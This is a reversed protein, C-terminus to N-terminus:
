VGSISLRESFLTLWSCRGGPWDCSPLSPFILAFCVKLLSGAKSLAICTRTFLPRRHASVPELVWSSRPINRLRQPIFRFYEAKLCFSTHKTSRHRDTHKFTHTHTHSLTCTRTLTLTYTHTHSHTLTHVHTHTHM